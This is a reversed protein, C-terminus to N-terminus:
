KRRRKRAKGSDELPKRMLPTYPPLAMPVVNQQPSGLRDQRADLTLLSLADLQLAGAIDEISSLKTDGKGALINSVSKQAVTIGLTKARRALENQSMGRANLEARLRERFVAQLTGKGM